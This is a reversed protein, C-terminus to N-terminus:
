KPQVFVIIEKENSKIASNLCGLRAKRWVKKKKKTIFFNVSKTLMHSYHLPKFMQRVLLLDKTGEGPTSM